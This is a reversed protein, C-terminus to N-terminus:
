NPLFFGLKSCMLFFFPSQQYIKESFGLSRKEDQMFLKKKMYKM